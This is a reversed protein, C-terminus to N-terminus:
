ERERERENLGQCLLHIRLILTQHPQVSVSSLDQGAGVQLSVLSFHVSGSEPLDVQGPAFYCESAYGCTFRKGTTSLCEFYHAPCFPDTSASETTYSSYFELIHQQLSINVLLSSVTEDCCLFMSENGLVACCQAKYM